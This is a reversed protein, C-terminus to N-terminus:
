NSAVTEGTPQLVDRMKKTTSIAIKSTIVFNSTYLRLNYTGAAIKKKDIDCEKGSNASAYVAEGTMPDLIEYKYFNDASELKLSDTSTDDTITMAVSGDPATTVYKLRKTPTTNEQSFGVLGIAAIVVTLVVKKSVLSINNRKHEHNKKTFNMIELNKFNSYVIISHQKNLFEPM